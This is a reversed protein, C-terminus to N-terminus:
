QPKGLVPVGALLAQNVPNQQVFVKMQECLEAFQRDANLQTKLSRLLANMEKRLQQKTLGRSLLMERLAINEERYQENLDFLHTMIKVVSANAPNSASM